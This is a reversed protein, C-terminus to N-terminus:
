RRCRGPQLDDGVGAVVDYGNTAGLIHEISIMVPRAEEAVHSISPSYDWKNFAQNSSRSRVGGDATGASVRSGRPATKRNFDSAPQVNVGRSVELDTQEIGVVVPRGKARVKMLVVIPNGRPNDHPEEASCGLLLGARRGLLEFLRNHGVYRRQDDANQATRLWAFSWVEVWV